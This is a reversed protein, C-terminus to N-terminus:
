FVKQMYSFPSNKVFLHDPVIFFFISFLFPFLMDVPPLDRPRIM